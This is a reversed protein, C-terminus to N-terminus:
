LTTLANSVVGANSIGLQTSVANDTGHRHMQCHAVLQQREYASLQEQCHARSHGTANCCNESTSPLSQQQLMTPPPTVFATTAQAEQAEVFASTTTVVKKATDKGGLLAAPVGTAVASGVGTAAAGAVASAPSVPASSSGGAGSGGGSGGGKGSSGSGSSGHAAVPITDVSTYTDICSCGNSEETCKCVNPTCM